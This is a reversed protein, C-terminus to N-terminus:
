IKEVQYIVILLRLSIIFSQLSLEFSNHFKLQKHLFYYGSATLM